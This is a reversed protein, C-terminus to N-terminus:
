IMQIGKIIGKRRDPSKPRACKAKEFFNQFLKSWLQCFRERTRRPSAFPSFYVRGWRTVFPPSFISGLRMSHCFRQVNLPKQLATNLFSAISAIRSLFYRFFCSTVKESRDGCFFILKVSAVLIKYIIFSFFREKDGPFFNRRFLKSVRKVRQRFFFTLSYQQIVEKIHLVCFDRFQHLYRAACYM